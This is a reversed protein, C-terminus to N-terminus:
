MKKNEKVNWGATATAGKTGKDTQESYESKVKAAKFSYTCKVESSEAGSVTVSTVIVDELTIKLFEMQDGGAKAGAVEIKGIHEGSACKVLMPTYSKDMSAVATLNDFSVQGAGGGGGKSMTDPQDAGWSFSDLDTWNKYVSNKSEGDAGQVKMFLAIPM